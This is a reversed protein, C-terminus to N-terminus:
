SILLEGKLEIVERIAGSSGGIQWEPNTRRFVPVM